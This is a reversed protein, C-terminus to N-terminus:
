KGSIFYLYTICVAMKLDLTLRFLMYCSSLRYFVACNSIFQLYTALSSVWFLVDGLAAAEILCVHKYHVGLALMIVSCILLQYHSEQMAYIFTLVFLHLCCFVANCIFVDVVVLCDITHQSCSVACWYSKAILLSNIVELVGDSWREVSMLATASISHVATCHLSSKFLM